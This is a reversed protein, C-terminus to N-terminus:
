NHEIGVLRISQLAVKLLRLISALFARADGINLEGKEVILSSPLDLNYHDTAITFPFKPDNSDPKLSDYLTEVIRADRLVIRISLDVRCADKIM